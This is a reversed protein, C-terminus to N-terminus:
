AEGVKRRSALRACSDIGGNSASSRTKVLGASAMTPVSAMSAWVGDLGLRRRRVPDLEVAAVLQEARPAPVFVDICEEIRDRAPDRRDLLDLRLAPWLGRGRGGFRGCM